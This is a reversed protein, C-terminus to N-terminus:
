LPRQVPRQVPRGARALALGALLLCLVAAVGVLLNRIVLALLAV